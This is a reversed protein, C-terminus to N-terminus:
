VEIEVWATALGIELMCTISGILFRVGKNDSCAYRDGVRVGGGGPASGHHTCCSMDRVEDGCERKWGGGRLM